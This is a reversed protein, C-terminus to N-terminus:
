QPGLAFGTQTNLSWWSSIGSWLSQKGNNARSEDEIPQICFPARQSKSHGKQVSGLMESVVMSCRIRKEHFTDHPYPPIGPFWLIGQSSLRILVTVWDCFLRPIRTQYGTLVEEDLWIRRSVNQDRIGPIMTQHGAQWNNNCKTWQACM